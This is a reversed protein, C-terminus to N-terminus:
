HRRRAFMGVRYPRLEDIEDSQRDIWFWADVLGPYNVSTVRSGFILGDMRRLTFTQVEIRVEHGAM